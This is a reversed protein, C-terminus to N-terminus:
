PLWITKKCSRRALSVQWNALNALTQDLHRLITGFTDLRHHRLRVTLFTLESASEAILWKILYVNGNLM